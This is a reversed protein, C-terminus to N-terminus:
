FRNNMTASMFFSQSATSKIDWSNNTLAAVIGACHTGHGNFDRPDNDEGSGDEGPSPPYTATEESVFDWGVWDDVKGNKDNDLNDFGNNEDLGTKEAQNFWVNGDIKLSEEPTFPNLNPDTNAKYFAESGGLDQHFYRVGTDAIAM